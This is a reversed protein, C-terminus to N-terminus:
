GFSGVMKSYLKEIEGILLKEVSLETGNNKNFQEIAARILALKTPDIEFSITASGLRSRQYVQRGPTGYFFGEERQMKILRAQEELPLFWHKNKKIANLKNKYLMSTLYSYTVGLRIAMIAVTTAGEMSPKQKAGVYIGTADKDYDRVKDRKAEDGAQKRVEREDKNTMTKGGIKRKSSERRSQTM